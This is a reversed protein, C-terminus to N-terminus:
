SGGGGAGRYQEESHAFFCKRGKSCKAVQKKMFFRCYAANRKLAAKRGAKAAARRKAPARKAPVKKAPAVKAAAARAPRKAIGQYRQREEQGHAYTCRVGRPCSKAQKPKFFKCIMTKYNNPRDKSKAVKKKPKAAARRKIKTGKLVPASVARPIIAKKVPAEEHYCKHRVAHRVLSGMLANAQLTPAHGLMILHQRARTVAVNLRRFDKLFGVRKKPNARVFSIIIIDREDGQFGDVTHVLVQNFLKGPMRRIRDSIMQVQGSYFTIVGVRSMDVKNRALHQLM